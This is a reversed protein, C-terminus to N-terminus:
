INANILLQDRTSLPRDTYPRVLKRMTERQHRHTQSLSVSLPLPPALLAETPLWQILFM